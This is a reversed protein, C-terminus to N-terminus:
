ISLHEDHQFKFLHAVFEPILILTSFLFFVTVFFLYSFKIKDENQREKKNSVQLEVIDFDSSYNSM